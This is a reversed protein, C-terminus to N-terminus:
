VTISEYLPNGMVSAPGDLAAGDAVSRSCLGGLSHPAGNRGRSELKTMEGGSAMMAVCPNKCPHHLCGGWLCLSRFPLWREKGRKWPKATNVRNVFHSGTEFLFSSKLPNYIHSLLSKPCWIAWLFFFPFKSVIEAYIFSFCVTHAELGETAGSHEPLLPFYFHGTTQTESYRSSSNGFDLFTSQLRLGSCRQTSLEGRILSMLFLISILSLTEVSM